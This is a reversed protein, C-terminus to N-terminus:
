REGGLYDAFCAAPSDAVVSPEYLMRDAHVVRGDPLIYLNTGAGDPLQPYREHLGGDRVAREREAEGFDISEAALRALEDVASRLEAPVGRALLNRQEGPDTGLDFCLPPADRFRVYKLRGHRIARFETGAGWRPTLSDCVIPRAPPETDGLLSPSLDIGDLGTPVPAGALGCFTPFLDLLAVPTRVRRSPRAGRRQEPTSVVLPVRTCGEYWGNKWWIGHEGAMEGHDTTYVIVTNDLLGDSGLRLLMGGVIEDLYSV